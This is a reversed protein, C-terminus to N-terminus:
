KRALQWAVLGPLGLVLDRFRKTLSLALATEPALGVAAGLLLFGGEQVGLAGPVLFAAAKVAQGLSELMMAATLGVPHGLVKLALWVEGVGAIWSVLHWVASNRIVRRNAYTRTVAADLASAELQMSNWTGEGTFRGALNALVRFLGRRQLAFFGYVMLAFVVSGLLAQVALRQGGLLIPLLALGMLTFVVQTAVVLTVDVVVSGAASDAPLGRRAVYQARVISGGIQLVPLLSNVSEGIWRAFAIRGFSPVQSPPILARWGLAHTVLPVLHYAAVGFLGVGGVALADAVEGVGRYAILATFLVLGVVLGASAVAGLRSLM